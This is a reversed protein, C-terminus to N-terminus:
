NGERKLLPRGGLVDLLHELDRDMQEEIAPKPVRKFVEQEIEKNGSLIAVTRLNYASWGPFESRKDLLEQIKSLNHVRIAHKLRTYTGM